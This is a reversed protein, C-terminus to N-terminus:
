STDVEVTTPPQGFPFEGINPDIIPHANHNGISLM